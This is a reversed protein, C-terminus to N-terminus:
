GLVALDVVLGHRMDWPGGQPECAPFLQHFPNLMIQALLRPNVQAMGLKPPPVPAAPPLGLAPSAFPAWVPLAQIVTWRLGWCWPTIQTETGCSLQDLRAILFIENLELEGCVGRFTDSGRLFIPTWETNNMILGLYLILPIVKLYSLYKM